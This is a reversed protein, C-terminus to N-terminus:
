INFVRVQLVRVSLVALALNRYQTFVTKFPFHAYRFDANLPFMKCDRSDPSMLILVELVQILRFRGACSFVIRERVTVNCAPTM